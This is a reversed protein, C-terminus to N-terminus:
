AVTMAYGGDPDILSLPRARVNYCTLAVLHALASIAWFISGVFMLIAYMEFRASISDEFKTPVDSTVQCCTSTIYLNGNAFGSKYSDANTVATGDSYTYQKQTDDNKTDSTATIHDPLQSASMQNGGQSDELIGLVISEEVVTNLNACSQQNLKSYTSYIARTDSNGYYTLEDDTGLSSILTHTYDGFLNATPKAGMNMPISVACPQYTQGDGGGYTNKYATNEGSDTILKAYDDLVSKKPIFSGNIKNDNLGTSLVLFAIFFFLSGVWDHNRLAGLQNNAWNSLLGGLTWGCEVHEDTYKGDKEGCGFPNCVTRTFGFVYLPKYNAWVLVLFTLGFRLGFILAFNSIVDNFYPGDYDLVGLTSEISSDRKLDGRYLLRGIAIKFRVTNSYICSDKYEDKTCDVSSSPFQLDDPTYISVAQSALIIAGVDLGVYILQILLDPNNNEPWWLKVVPNVRALLSLALALGNSICALISAVLFFQYAKLGADFIGDENTLEGAGLYQSEQMAQVAAAIYFGVAVAYTVSVVERMFIGYGVYFAINNFPGATTISEKDIGDPLKIEKM